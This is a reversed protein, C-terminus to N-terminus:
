KQDMVDDDRLAKYSINIFINNYFRFTLSQFTEFFFGTNKLNIFTKITFINNIQSYFTWSIEM